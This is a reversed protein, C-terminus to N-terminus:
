EEQKTETMKSVNTNYKYTRYKAYTIPRHAGPGQGQGWYTGDPCSTYRRFGTEFHGIIGGHDPLEIEIKDGQLSLEKSVNIEYIIKNNRSYISNNTLTKLEIHKNNIKARIRQADGVAYLDVSDEKSSLTTYEWTCKIPAHTPPDCDRDGPPGHCGGRDIVIYGNITHTKVNSPTQVIASVSVEIRFIDGSRINNITVTKSSTNEIVSLNNRYSNKSQGITSYKLIGMTGPNLKNIKNPRVGSLIVNGKFFDDISLEDEIVPFQINNTAEGLRIINGLSDYTLKEELQLMTIIEAVKIDSSIIKSNSLDDIISIFAYSKGKSSEFQDSLKYTKNIKDSILAESLKILFPEGNKIAEIVRDTPLNNFVLDVDFIVSESTNIVIPNGNIDRAIVPTGIESMDLTDKDMTVLSFTLEKIHNIHSVNDLRVRGKFHIVGSDSTIDADKTKYIFNQVDSFRFDSIKFTNYYDISSNESDLGKFIFNYSFYDAIHSYHSWDKFISGRSSQGLIEYKSKNNEVSFVKLSLFNSSEIKLHPLDAILDSTGLAKEELPGYLDGDRDIKETSSDTRGLTNGSDPVPDEDSKFSCSVSFSFLILIILFKILKM